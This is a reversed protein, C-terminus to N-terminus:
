QRTADQIFQAGLIRHIWNGPAAPVLVMLKEGLVDAIRVQLLVDGLDDAQHLRCVVPTLELAHKAADELRLTRGAVSARHVHTFVLGGSGPPKSESKPPVAPLM